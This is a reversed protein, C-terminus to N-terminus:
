MPRSNIMGAASVPLGIGLIQHLATEERVASIRKIEAVKDDQGSNTDSGVGDEEERESKGEEEKGIGCDDRRFFVVQAVFESLLEVIVAGAYIPEQGVKGADTLCEAAHLEIPAAEDGGFISRGVGPDSGNEEDGEFVGPEIAFM